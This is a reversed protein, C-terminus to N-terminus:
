AYVDDHPLRRLVAAARCIRRWRRCHFCTVRMIFDDHRAYAHAFFYAAAFLFLLRAAYFERMAVRVALRESEGRSERCVELRLPMMGHVRSAAASVVFRMLCRKADYFREHMLMHLRLSQMRLYFLRMHHAAKM